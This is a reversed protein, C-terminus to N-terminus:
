FPYNVSYDLKKLKNMKPFINIEKETEDLHGDFSFLELNEFDKLSSIKFPLNDNLYLKKIKDKNISPSFSFSKGKLDKYNDYDKSVKIAEPIRQFSANEVNNFIIKKSNDLYEKKVIIYNYIENDDFRNDSSLISGM